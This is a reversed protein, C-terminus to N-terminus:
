VHVEFIPNIIRIAPDPKLAYALTLPKKLSTNEQIDYNLQLQTQNSENLSYVCVLDAQYQTKDEYRLTLSQTVSKVDGYSLMVAQNVVPADGYSLMVAQSNQRTLSYMLELDASVVPAETVVLIRAYLSQYM